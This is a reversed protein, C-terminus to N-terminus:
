AASKGYDRISVWLDSASVSYGVLIIRDGGSPITETLTGTSSLYIPVGLSASSLSSALLGHAVMECTQGPTAQATRAVGVVRALADTSASAKAVRSATGTSWCLVENASIAENVTVTAEVKPAETAATSAHV